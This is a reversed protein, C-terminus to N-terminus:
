GDMASSRQESKPEQQTGLLAAFAGICVLSVIAFAEQSIAGARSTFRIILLISATFILAAPIVRRSEM